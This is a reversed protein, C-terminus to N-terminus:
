WTGGIIRYESDGAAAAVDRLALMGHDDAAATCPLVVAIM